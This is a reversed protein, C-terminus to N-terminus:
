FGRRSSTEVFRTGLPNFQLCMACAREHADLFAEFARLRRMEGPADRRTAKSQEARLVDFKRILRVMVPCQM